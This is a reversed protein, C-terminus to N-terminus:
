YIEWYGHKVNKALKESCLNQLVNNFFQGVNKIELPLGGHDLHVQRVDAVIIKKRTEGKGGFLKRILLTAIDPTLPSDKGTYEESGEISLSLQRQRDERSNSANPQELPLEEKRLFALVQEDDPRHGCVDETKEAVVKLM